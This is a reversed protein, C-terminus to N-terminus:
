NKIKIKQQQGMIECKKKEKTKLLEARKKENTNIKRKKVNEIEKFNLSM